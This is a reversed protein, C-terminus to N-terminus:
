PNLMRICMDVAAAAEPEVSPRYNPPLTFVTLGAPTSVTGDPATTWGHQLEPMQWVTECTCAGLRRGCTCNVRPDIDPPPKTFTTMAESPNDLHHQLRDRSPPMWPPSVPPPYATGSEDVIDRPERQRATEGLQERAEDLMSAIEAETTPLLPRSFRQALADPGGLGDPGGPHCVPRMADAAIRYDAESPGGPVLYGPRTRLLRAAELRDAETWPMRSVGEHILDRRAQERTLPRHYLRFPPRYPPSTGSDHM